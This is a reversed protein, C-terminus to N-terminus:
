QGRLIRLNSEHASQADLKSEECYEIQQEFFAILRDVDEKDKETVLNINKLKNLYTKHKMSDEKGFRGSFSLVQNTLERVYSSTARQIAEDLHSM